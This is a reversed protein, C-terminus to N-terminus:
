FPPRGRWPGSAVARQAVAFGLLGGAGPLWLAIAHYVLVAATAHVAPVGYLTLAGALGADLVGIGGPVPLGNALYGILYGLAIAALPPTDGIAHLAAWLVAIDFWLYGFAGALRWTPRRLVSGAERIGALLEGRTGTAAVGDAPGPRAALAVRGVFGILVCGALV